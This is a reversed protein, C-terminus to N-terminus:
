NVVGQIWTFVNRHPYNKPMSAMIGEIQGKMRILKTIRVDIFQGLRIQKPAGM